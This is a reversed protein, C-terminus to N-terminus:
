TRNTHPLAVDECVPAAWDPLGLVSISFSHCGVWTNGVEFDELAKIKLMIFDIEAQTFLTAQRQRTFQHSIIPRTRLLSNAVFRAIAVRLPLHWPDPVSLAKDFVLVPRNQYGFTALYSFFPISQLEKLKNM